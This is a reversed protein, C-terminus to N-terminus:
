AVVKGLLIVMEELESTMIEYSQEYNELLRVLADAAEKNLHLEGHINIQEKTLQSPKKM